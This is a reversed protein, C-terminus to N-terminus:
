SSPLWTSWLSAALGCLLGFGVLWFDVRTGQGLERIIREALFERGADVSKWSHPELGADEHQKRWRANAVDRDAQSVDVPTAAFLEASFQERVQRESEMRQVGREADRRILWLGAASLGFAAITLVTIGVKATLLDM